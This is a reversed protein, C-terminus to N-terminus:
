VAYRGRQGREGFGPELVIHTHFRLHTDPALHSSTRGLEVPLIPTRMPRLAFCTDRLSPTCPRRSRFWTAKPIAVTCLFRTAPAQLRFGDGVKVPFAITPFGSTTRTLEGVIAHLPGIIRSRCQRSLTLPIAASRLLSSPSRLFSACGPSRFPSFGLVPPLMNVVKRVDSPLQLLPSFPTLRVALEHDFVDITTAGAEGGNREVLHIATRDDNAIPADAVQAPSLRLAPVQGQIVDDWQDFAALVAFRVQSNGASGAVRPLVAQWQLDNKM